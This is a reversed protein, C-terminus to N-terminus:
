LLPTKPQPAVNATNLAGSTRVVIVGSAGGGGGGGADGAGSNGDTGDGTSSTEDGGGGGGSGDGTFPGSGGSGGSPGCGPRGNNGEVVGTGSNFAGGGGGGGTACITATQTFMVSPAEFLIGGGAGGGNGGVLLGGPGVIGGEGGSGSANITGDIVIEQQASIEIAGGAEGGPDVQTSAANSSPAGNCGGTLPVLLPMVTPAGLAAPVAACGGGNGGHGNFAGGAGGGTCTGGVSGPQTSCDSAGASVVIDGDIIVNGDVAFIASASGVLDLEASAAVTMTTVHFLRMQVGAVTLLKSSPADDDTSITQQGEVALPIAPLGMLDALKYNSPTFALSGDIPVGCAGSAGPSRCAGASVDCHQVSPCDSDTACVYACDRVSPAYCGTLAAVTTAILVLRAV